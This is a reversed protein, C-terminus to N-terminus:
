GCSARCGSRRWAPTPPSSRTPPPTGTSPRPWCSPASGRTPTTSRAACCGRRSATTRRTPSSSSGSAGRRRVDVPGQRAPAPRDEGRAAPAAGAARARADGVLPHDVPTRRGIHAGRSTSSSSRDQGTPLFDRYPFDTGVLVLSTAATSPSARHRPQRDAGVPRGRLRQRGRLGGQGQAHAGDARAAARRARAGRRPRRPRGPRRAPDVTGAANIARPRPRSRRRGAARRGPQDTSSGRCRRHGQAPRPRRRRGPLTLM